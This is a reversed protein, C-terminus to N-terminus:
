FGKAVKLSLISLNLFYHDNSNIFDIVPKTDDGEAQQALLASANGAFFLSTAAKNRNHGGDGM